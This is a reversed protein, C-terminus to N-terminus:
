IISFVMIQSDITCGSFLIAESKFAPLKGLVPRTNSFKTTYLDLLLVRGSMYDSRYSVLNTYNIVM